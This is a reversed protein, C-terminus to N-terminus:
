KKKYLPYDKRFKSIAETMSYLIYKTDEIIIVGNRYKRAVVGKRVYKTQIPFDLTM